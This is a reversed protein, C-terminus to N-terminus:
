ALPLEVVFGNATCRLTGGERAVMFVTIAILENVSAHTPQTGALRLTARDDASTASVQVTRGQTRPPAVLDLLMSLAHMMSPPAVMLELSPVEGTLKVGHREASRALLEPLLTRVAQPPKALARNATLLAHLQHLSSQATETATRVDSDGEGILESIEDLAMMLSQLKSAADHHFGSARSGLAAFTMLKDTAAAHQTCPRGEEDLHGLVADDTV